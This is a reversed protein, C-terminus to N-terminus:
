CLINIEICIIKAIIINCLINSNFTIHVQDISFDQYWGPSKDKSVNTTDNDKQEVTDTNEATEEDYAEQKQEM